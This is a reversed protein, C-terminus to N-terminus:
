ERLSRGVAIAKGTTEGSAVPCTNQELVSFILYKIGILRRRSSISWPHYAGSFHCINAWITWSSVRFPVWHAFYSRRDGQTYFLKSCQPTVPPQLPFHKEGTVTSKWMKTMSFSSFEGRRIAVIRRVLHDAQFSTQKDARSQNNERDPFIVISRTSSCIM